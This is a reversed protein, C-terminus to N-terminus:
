RVPRVVLGQDSEMSAHLSSEDLGSVVGYEVRGRM